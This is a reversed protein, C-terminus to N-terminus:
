SKKSTYLISQQYEKSDFKNIGDGSIIDADGDGNLFTAIKTTKALRYDKEIGVIHEKNVWSFPIDAYNRLKSKQMPLSVIKKSNLQNLIVQVKSMASILFHGAGCAYDIIKPIFDIKNQQIRQTIISEFPLSDIMFDVIPYPTFFQGAEQKLSTNLLNEFFDGLFQHKTEYKFKYGELLEVIEKVVEFNEYFTDDDYVDIFSFNNSKKLRLNDFITFLLENSNKDIISEIEEDNYDIVDTNLYERMGIKYLENLRKIFTEPTDVGDIYQFKVGNVEHESKTTDKIKFDKNCTIEDAIKALLLNIMKIFANPKDSISHLRLITLFQNYLISTDSACINELDEYKKVSQKINFITNKEIYDNKDFVKNWRDFLDDVNQSIKIIKELFVNFFCDQKLEFNYSYFSIIKSTREQMAYSFVQKIKKDNNINIFHSIEDSSKVEFMYIDQNNPNQLMVDLSGSDEHGLQWRKELTIVNKSYGKKLLKILLMVVSHNEKKTLDFIRKHGCNIGDISYTDNLQNFIFTADGVNLMYINDEIIKVDYKNNVLFDLLDKTRM